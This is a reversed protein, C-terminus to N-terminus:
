EAVGYEIFDELVTDFVACFPVEPEVATGRPIYVGVIDAQMDPGIHAMWQGLDGYTVGSGDECTFQANLHFTLVRDKWENLNLQRSNM